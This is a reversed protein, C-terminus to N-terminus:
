RKGKTTQHVRYQIRYQPSLPELGFLPVPEGVIDAFVATDAFPAPDTQPSSVEGTCDNSFQQDLLKDEARVRELMRIAQSKKWGVSPAAEERSRPRWYGPNGTCVLLGHDIIASEVLARLHRDAHAPDLELLPALDRATLANDLGIPVAAFFRKVDEPSVHPARTSDGKM